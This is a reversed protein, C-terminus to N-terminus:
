LKLKCISFMQCPNTGGAVVELEGDNLETGIGNPSIQPVQPVFLQKNKQQTSETKIPNSM